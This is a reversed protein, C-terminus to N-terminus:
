AVVATVQKNDTIFLRNARIQQNRPITPPSPRDPPSRRLPAWRSITSPASDGGTRRHSERRVRDAITAPGDAHSAFPCPVNTTIPRPLFHHKHFHRRHIATPALLHTAASHRALSGSPATARESSPDVDATVYVTYFKIDGLTPLSRREATTSSSFFRPCNAGGGARGSVRARSVPSTAGRKEASLDRSTSSNRWWLPTKPGVTEIADVAIARVVTPRGHESRVSWKRGSRDAAESRSPARL